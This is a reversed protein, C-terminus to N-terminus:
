IPIADVTVTTTITAKLELHNNFHQSNTLIEDAAPDCPLAWGICM